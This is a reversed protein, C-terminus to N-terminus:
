KCIEIGYSLRRDLTLTKMHRCRSFPALLLKNSQNLPKESLKFACVMMSQGLAENQEYFHIHFYLEEHPATTM